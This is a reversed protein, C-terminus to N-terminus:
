KGSALCMEVNNMLENIQATMERVSRVEEYVKFVKDQREREVEDLPPPIFVSFITSPNDSMLYDGDGENNTM